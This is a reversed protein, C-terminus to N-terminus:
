YSTPFYQTNAMFLLAPEDRSSPAISGCHGRAIALTLILLLHEADRAPLYLHIFWKM